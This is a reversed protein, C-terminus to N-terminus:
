GTSYQSRYYKGIMFRKKLFSITYAKSASFLLDGQLNYQLVKLFVDQDFNTKQQTITSRVVQIEDEIDKLKHSAETRDLTTVYQGSDGHNRRDGFGSNLRCIDWCNAACGPGMIDESYEAWLKGSFSISVEFKGKQVIGFLEEKENSGQSKLVFGILVLIVTIELGIIIRKEGLYLKKIKFVYNQM